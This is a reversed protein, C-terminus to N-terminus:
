REGYPGTQPAQFPNAQWSTKSLFPYYIHTGKKSEASMIIKLRLAMQFKPLTVPSEQASILNYPALPRDILGLHM